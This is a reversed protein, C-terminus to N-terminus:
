NNANVIFSTDFGDSESSLIGNRESGRYSTLGPVRIVSIEGGGLGIAGAHRAATCLDSDGTYPGNGWIQLNVGNAACTCRTEVGEVLGACAGPPATVETTATVPPTPAAPPQYPVFALSIDYRGWDQTRIGNADSGEYRAQGAVRQVTVAGGEAGIMGAHRAATCVDSDGTYFGSGWVGGPTGAPGCTCSHVPQGVPYRGCAPLNEQASTGGGGAVMAVVALGVLRFVAM